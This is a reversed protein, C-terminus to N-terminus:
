LEPVIRAYRGPRREWIRRPDAGDQALWLIQGDGTTTEVYGRDVLKGGDHIEIKEGALRTWDPVGTWSDPLQSPNTNTQPSYMPDEPHRLLASIRGFNGPM